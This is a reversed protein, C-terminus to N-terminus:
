HTSHGLCYACNDFGQRRAEELTDPMFSVANGSQIIEDIQCNANEKDLDHVEMHDPARNGVFRRGWTPAALRRAMEIVEKGVVTPTREFKILHRL